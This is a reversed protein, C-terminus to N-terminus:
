AAKNKSLMKVEYRDIVRNVDEFAVLVQKQTPKYVPINNNRVFALVTEITVGWENALAKVSIHKLGTM